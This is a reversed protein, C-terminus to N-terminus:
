VTKWMRNLVTIYTMLTTVHHEDNRNCTRYHEAIAYMIASREMSNNILTARETIDTMINTREKRTIDATANTREKRRYYNPWCVGASLHQLPQIKRM